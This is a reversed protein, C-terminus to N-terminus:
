EYIAIGSTQMQTMTTVFGKTASAMSISTAYIGKVPENTFTAGGDTSHFFAGEFNSDLEGGVAWVETASAFRVGMLSHAAGATFVVQKWDKGNTTQFIRSGAGTGSDAEAVAVCHTEDYCDIGNFYYENVGQVKFQTTWTKGGDESKAIAGTYQTYNTKGAGMRLEGTRPHMGFRASVAHFEEPLANEANNSPWSGGTAYMVKPSPAAGYRAGFPSNNTWIEHTTFHAGGDSSIGVGNWFITQGTLMVQGKTGHVAEVSQCPGGSGLLAKFFAEGTNNSFQSGMFGAVNGTLKDGTDAAAAMFMLASDHPKTAFTKGGDSSKWVVPGVGNNGGAVIVRDEDFAAVGMAASATFSSSATWTAALAPGAISAILALALITKM